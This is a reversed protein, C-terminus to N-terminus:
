HVIFCSVYGYLIASQLQILVLCCSLCLPRLVYLLQTFLLCISTLGYTVVYNLLSLCVVYCYTSCYKQHICFVNYQCHVYYVVVCTFTTSCGFITPFSGSYHASSYNNFLLIFLSLNLYTNQLAVKVFTLFGHYLITILIISYCKTNTSLFIPCFM